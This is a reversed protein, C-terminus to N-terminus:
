SISTRMLKLFQNSNSNTQKKYLVASNLTILCIEMFFLKGHQNQLLYNTADFIFTSIIFYIILCKRNSSNGQLIQLLYDAESFIFCHFKSYEFM